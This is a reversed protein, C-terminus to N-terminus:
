TIGIWYTSSAKREEQSSYNTGPIYIPRSSGLDVDGANLKAYNFPTFFETVTLPM